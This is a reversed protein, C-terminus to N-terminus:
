WAVGLLQWRLEVVTMEITFLRRQKVQRTYCQRLNKIGGYGHREGQCHGHGVATASLILM